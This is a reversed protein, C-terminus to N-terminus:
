LCGSDRFQSRQAFCGNELVQNRLFRREKAKQVLIGMAALSLSNDGGLQLALSLGCTELGMRRSFGRLSFSWRAQRLSQEFIPDCVKGFYKRRTNHQFRLM